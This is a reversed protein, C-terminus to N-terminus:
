KGEKEEITASVSSSRGAVDEADCVGVLGVKGLLIAGIPSRRKEM